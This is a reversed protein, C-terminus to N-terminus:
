GFYRYEPIEEIDHIEDSVVVPQLDMIEELKQALADTVEEMTADDEVAVQAFYTICGEFYKMTHM